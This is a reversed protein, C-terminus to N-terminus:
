FTLLPSSSELKGCTAVNRVVFLRPPCEPRYKASDQHTVLIGGFFSEQSTQVKVTVVQTGTVTKNGEGQAGVM